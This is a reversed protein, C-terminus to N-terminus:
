DLIAAAVSDEFEALVAAARRIAEEAERRLTLVEHMCLGSARGIESPCLEVGCLGYSLCIVRLHIPRTRFEATAIALMKARMADLRDVDAAQDQASGEKDCIVDGITSMDKMSALIAKATRGEISM